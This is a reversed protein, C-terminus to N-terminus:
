GNPEGRNSNWRRAIEMALKHLEELCQPAAPGGVIAVHWGDLYLSLGVAEMRGPQPEDPFLTM